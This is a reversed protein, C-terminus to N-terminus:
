NKEDEGKGKTEKMENHKIDADKQSDESSGGNELWWGWLGAAITIVCMIGVLINAFM